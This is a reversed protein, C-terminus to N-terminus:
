TRYGRALLYVETSRARSAAPKRTLVQAFCARLQKFYDDFGKGQFCKVLFCGEKKLVRKAITLSLEVLAYSRPQDISPIGSLNPAIDSLVLDVCGTQLTHYLKDLTQTTELDGEIFIVGQIPEMPLRDVAIVKGHTGIKQRALQSWAGPAAGLDLVTKGPKFLRDKEHIALLKYAARSRFGHQQALKVYPDAVHKRLWPNKFKINTM